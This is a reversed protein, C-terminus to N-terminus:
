ILGFEFNFASSWLDSKAIEEWLGVARNIINFLNYPVAGSMLSYREPNVLGAIGTLM